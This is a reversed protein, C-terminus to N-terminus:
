YVASWISQVVYWDNYQVGYVRYGLGTMICCEM